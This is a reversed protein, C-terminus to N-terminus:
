FPPDDSFATSQRGRNRLEALDRAVNLAFEFSERDVWSKELMHRFWDEDLRDASIAYEGGDNMTALLSESVVWQPPCLQIVRRVPDPRLSEGYSYELLKQLGVFCGSPDFLEDGPYFGNVQVAEAIRLLFGLANEDDSWNVTTLAVGDLRELIYAAERDWQHLGNPHAPIFRLCLTTEPLAVRCGDEPILSLALARDLAASLIEKTPNSSVSSFFERDRIRSEMVQRKWASSLELPKLEIDGPKEGLDGNSGDSLGSQDSPMRSDAPLDAAIPEQRSPRKSRAAEYWQQRWHGDRILDAPLTTGTREAHVRCARVLALMQDLNPSSTGSLKDQITSRALPRGSEGTLSVLLDLSPMGALLRLERLQDALPASRNDKGIDVM